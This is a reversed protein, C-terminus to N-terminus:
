SAILVRPSIKIYPNTRIPHLGLVQLSEHVTSTPQSRQTYLFMGPACTSASTILLTSTSPYTSLVTVHCRHWTHATRWYVISGGSGYQTISSLLRSEIENSIENWKSEAIILALKVRTFQKSIGEWITTNRMWGSFSNKLCLRTVHKSHEFSVVLTQMAILVHGLIHISQDNTWDGVIRTEYHISLLLTIASASKGEGYGEQLPPYGGQGPRQGASRGPRVSGACSCWRFM